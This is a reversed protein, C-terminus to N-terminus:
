GHVLGQEPAERRMHEGDEDAASGVERRGLITIVTPTLARLLAEDM